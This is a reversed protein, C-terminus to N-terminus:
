VAQPPRRSVLLSFGGKRIPGFPMAARQVANAITPSDAARLRSREGGAPPGYGGGIPPIHSAFGLVGCFRWPRLGHHKQPLGGRARPGLTLRRPRLGRLGSRRVARETLATPTLAAFGGVPSDRGDDTTMPDWSGCRTRTPHPVVSPLPHRRTPIPHSAMAGGRAAKRGTRRTAARQPAASRLSEKIASCVSEYERLRERLSPLPIAVALRGRHSYPRTDACRAACATLRM